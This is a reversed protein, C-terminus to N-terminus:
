SFRNLKSRIMREYFQIAYSYLFDCLVFAVEAIIVLAWLPLPWAVDPVFITVILIYYLAMTANFYFLKIIWELVPNKNAEAISKVLGYLGLVLVYPLSSLPARPILLLSLIATAVYFLLSAHRNGEIVMVAIPLASIGYLVLKLNPVISALWLDLITLAGLIGGLTIIRTKQM